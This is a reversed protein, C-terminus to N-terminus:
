RPHPKEVPERLFIFRKILRVVFCCVAISVYYEALVGDIKGQGRPELHVGKIADLAELLGTVQCVLSTM